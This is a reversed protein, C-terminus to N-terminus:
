ILAALGALQTLNIGGSGSAPQQVPQQVPPMELFNAVILGVGIVMLGIGLGNFLTHM